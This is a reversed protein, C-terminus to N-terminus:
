AYAKSVWAEISKYQGAPLQKNQPGYAQKLKGNKVEIAGVTKNKNDRMYFLDTEGLSYSRLYTGICNKLAKGCEIIEDSNRFAVISFGKCVAEKQSIDQYRANIRENCEATEKAALIKSLEHHRKPFEKPKELKMDLKRLIKIHDMWTYFDIKNDELYTLYFKNLKVEKAFSLMWYTMDEKSIHYKHRMIDDDYDLDFIVMNRVQFANYLNDKLLKVQNPKVIQRLGELSESYYQKRPKKPVPNFEWYNRINWPYSQTKSLRWPDGREEPRATINCMFSHLSRIAWSKGNPMIHLCHYYDIIRIGEDFDWTYRLWVADLDDVFSLLKEDIPKYSTRKASFCYPCIRCSRIRKLEKFTIVKQTNCCPCFIEYKGADTKRYKIPQYKMDNMAINWLKFHPVEIPKVEVFGM